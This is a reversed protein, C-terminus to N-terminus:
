PVLFSDTVSAPGEVGRYNNIGSALWINDGNIVPSAAWLVSSDSRLVNQGSAKHMRSSAEDQVNAAKTLGQGSPDSVFLPNKDALIAMQSTQSMKPHSKAYQNQYSYSVAQPTNWDHATRDPNTPANANEPCSLTRPDVYGSRALHYLHASNSQNIEGNANTKGVNWWTDGPMAGRNPLADKNDASYQNFAAATISLNNACALKRADQRVYNLAPSILSIACILVAAITAIEHIRLGAFGSFGGETKAHALELANQSEIRALTKAVLDSPPAEAPCQDLLNLLNQLEQSPAAPNQDSHESTLRLAQSAHPAYPRNARAELFADLEALLAPDLQPTPHPGSGPTKGYAQSNRGDSNSETTDM